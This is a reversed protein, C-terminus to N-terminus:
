EGDVAQNGHDEEMQWDVPYCKQLEKQFAEINRGPQSCRGFLAMDEGMVNQEFVCFAANSEAWRYCISKFEEVVTARDASHLGYSNLVTEIRELGLEMRDAINM